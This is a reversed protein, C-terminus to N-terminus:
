GSNVLELFRPNERLPAYLPDLRLDWRSVTSPVSLLYELEDLAQDYKGALVLIRALHEQQTERWTLPAPNDVPYRGNTIAEGPRELELLAMGALFLLVPDPEKAVSLATRALELAKEPREADLAEYIAEIEQLEPERENM